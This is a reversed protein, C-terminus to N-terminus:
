VLEKLLDNLGAKLHGYIYHLNRYVNKLSRRNEYFSQLREIRYSALKYIGKKFTLRSPLNVVGHKIQGFLVLIRFISFRRALDIM